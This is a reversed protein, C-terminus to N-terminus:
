FTIAPGVNLDILLSSHNPLWGGVQLEGFLAFHKHLQYNFGVLAGIFVPGIRVVDVRNSADANQAVSLALLNDGTNPADSCARNYPWVPYCGSGTVDVDSPAELNDPVSNGNRDNAFGMDVRLRTHGYGGYVGVFPRLKWEEKGLFYKFKAGIAWSFPPRQKVGQPDPSRIDQDFSTQLDKNPDDRFMKAGTVVQLRGMLGLSIRKGIRFSVEPAIHFPAPAFGTSVPHREACGVPDYSQQMALQDGPGFLNFANSLQEANVSGLSDGGAVWRAIACASEAPGYVQPGRPFFQRYTNEAEVRAIGFGTGLGINIWVRPLASPEKPPKDPVDDPGGGGDDGAPGVTASECKQTLVFPQEQTGLNAVANASADFAYIFYEISENDHDTAPLNVEAVNSFAPMEVGIFEGTSGVKRWYLAATGGDPVSLLVEVHLPQDCSQVPDRLTIPQPASAGTAQRAEQLFKTLENSRLDPPVVVYYNLSVARKLDALIRDKASKGEASFTLAARLLYLSALVPDNSNGSSEAAAIAGNITGLAADYELNNADDLAKNYAAKMDDRPGAHALTPAFAACLPAFAGLLALSTVLTRAHPSRFPRPSFSAFLRDM